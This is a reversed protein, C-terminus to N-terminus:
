RWKRRGNPSTQTGKSVETHRVCLAAVTSAIFWFASIISHLPNTSVVTRNYARQLGFNILFGKYNGDKGSQRYRTKNRLYKGNHGSTTSFIFLHM